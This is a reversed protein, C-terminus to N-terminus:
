LPKMTSLKAIALNMIRFGADGSPGSHATISSFESVVGPDAQEYSFSDYHARDVYGDLPRGLHGISIDGIAIMTGPMGYSGNWRMQPATDPGTYDVHLGDKRTKPDYYGAYTRLEIVAHLGSQALRASVFSGLRWRSGQTAGHVWNGNQAFQYGYEPGAEQLARLVEAEEDTQPLEGAHYGRSPLTEGASWSDFNTQLEDLNIKPVGDFFRMEHITYYKRKVERLVPM